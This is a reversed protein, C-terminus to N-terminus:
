GPNLLLTLATFALWLAGVVTVILGAAIAALLATSRRRLRDPDALWGELLVLNRRQARWGVDFIDGLVPIAGVLTDIVINLLMRGIVSAPARLRAATVLALSAVLASAVDGIGPVLGVIADLGVRRGIVPLPLLDDWVRAIRRLHDLEGTRSAATSAVGPPAHM